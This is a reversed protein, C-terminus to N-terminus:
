GGDEPKPRVCFILGDAFRPSKKYLWRRLSPRIGRMNITHSYFAIELIEYKKLTFLNTLTRQSFFCTHDDRGYPETDRYTEIIRNVSFPNPTTVIMYTLPGFFKKIGDLFAGVNFLHEIIEGAVIVDFQEEVTTEGLREVDVYRIDYGQQRLQPIYENLLDFGVVKTAAEAIRQHLWLKLEAKSTFLDHDICGLHLVKKGKVRQLIYDIRDFVQPRM